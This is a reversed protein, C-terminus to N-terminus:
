AALSELTAHLRRCQDAVLRGALRFPSTLSPM